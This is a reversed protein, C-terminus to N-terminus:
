PSRVPCVFLPRTDTSALPDSQAPPEPPRRYAGRGSGGARLSTGLLPAAAGRRWRSLASSRPCRRRVSAVLEPWTFLRVPGRVECSYEAVTWTSAATRPPTQLACDMCLARSTFVTLPVRVRALVLAGRIKQIEPDATARRPGTCLTQLDATINRVGRRSVFAVFFWLVKGMNSLRSTARVTRGKKHETIQM